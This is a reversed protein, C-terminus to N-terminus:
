MPLDFKIYFHHHELFPVKVVLKSHDKPYVVTKSFVSKLSTELNWLCIDRSEFVRDFDMQCSNKVNLLIIMKRGKRYNGIIQFYLRYWALRLLKSRSSFCKRVSFDVALTWRFLKHKPNTLQMPLEHTPM